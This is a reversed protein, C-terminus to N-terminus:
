VLTSLDQEYEVEEYCGFMLTILKSASATRCLCSVKVVTCASNSECWLTLVVFCSKVIMSM